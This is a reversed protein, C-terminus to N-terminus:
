RGPLRRVRIVVDVRSIEAGEPPKPLRAIEVSDTPADVLRGEDEWLFHPHEDTRTDFLGRTGDIVVESLLGAETFSKLTNYVTALSVKEGLKRAASFLGDATVHRDRGDGVLLAALVRRQRTPRVGAARLWAEARALAPEDTPASLLEM